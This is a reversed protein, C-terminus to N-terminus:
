SKSNILDSDANREQPMYLDFSIMLTDVQVLFLRFPLGWLSTGPSELIPSAQLFVSDLFKCMEEYEEYSFTPSLINGDM